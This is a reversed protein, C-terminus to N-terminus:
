QAAPLVLHASHSSIEEALQAASAPRSWDYSRVDPPHFGGAEIAAIHRAPGGEVRQGVTAVLAPAASGYARRIVALQAHSPRMTNWFIGLCGGALLLAAVKTAAVASDLWHWAQGCVVLDFYRGAPDWQEFRAVEVALGHAIAVDAMRPDAEIGIVDAGRAAFLRGVKGTGCGADLVAPRDRDALLDDILEPPYQPRARDYLEAAAGFVSSRRNWDEAAM